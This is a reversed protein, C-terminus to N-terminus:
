ADGPQQAVTQEHPLLKPPSWFQHSLSYNIINNITAAYLDAYKDMQNAFCSLRGGKRFTSGFYPNYRADIEDVLTKREQDLKRIVERDQSPGSAAQFEGLKRELQHHREFLKTESTWVDLDHKLEPIVLFTKWGNTKKSRVVDGYIHDGFYLIDPGEAGTLQCFLDCNGGSYVEGQIMDDAHHTGLNASGTTKNIHRFPTGENFFRPKCAKVIIYDFYDTWKKGALDDLLYKMVVDTFQYPSNTLLFVKRDCSQLYDLLKPLNPNRDIFLDPHKMINSHLGKSHVMDFALSVDSWVTPYTLLSSTSNDFYGSNTKAYNSSKELWDIVISVVFIKPTDFLTDFLQLFRNEGEPTKEFLKCFKTPYEDRIERRTLKRTGRCATLVLGHLDLKLFNGMKKDFILGRVAFDALYKTDGIEKPYGLEVLREFAYKATEAEMYPTRYEALTYDMDFGYYKITDLSLSRNVFVRDTPCKRSQSQSELEPLDTTLGWVKSVTDHIHNNM